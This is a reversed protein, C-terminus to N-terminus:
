KTLHNTSLFNIQKMQIGVREGHHQQENFFSVRQSRENKTCHIFKTATQIVQYQRMSKQKDTRVSELACQVLLGGVSQWCQGCQHILIAKVFQKKRGQPIFSMMQSITSVCM